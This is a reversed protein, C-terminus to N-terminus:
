RIKLSRPGKVAWSDFSARFKVSGGVITATMALMRIRTGTILPKKATMAAAIQTKRV